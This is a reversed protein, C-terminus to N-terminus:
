GDPTGLAAPFDGDHDFEGGPDGQLRPKQRCVCRGAGDAGHVLRVDRRGQGVFVAQRERRDPLQQAPFAGPDLTAEGERALEGRRQPEQEVMALQGEGRREGQAGEPLILLHSKGSHDVAVGEVRPLCGSEERAVAGHLVSGGPFREQPIGPRGLRRPGGLACRAQPGGRLLGGRAQFGQLARKGREGPRVVGAEGIGLAAHKLGPTAM